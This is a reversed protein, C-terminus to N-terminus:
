GEGGTTGSQKYGDPVSSVGMVVGVVFLALSVAGVTWIRKKTWGRKFLFQVILMVLAVVVGAMGLLAILGALVGM